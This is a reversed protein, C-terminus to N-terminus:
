GAYSVRTTVKQRRRVAVGVAGMGLIMMAWTAPEPVAPTSSTIVASITGHNDYYGGDDIIGLFLRTAGTPVYFTQVAGSGTGTLGDGIFFIQDLNPSITSFDTGSLQAPAAGSPVSPGLFVGALGNLHVNTPGSIGTGYDPTLNYTFSTDGDATPSVPESLYHAAGGTTSFTLFTGPSLTIPALVPSNAPATDGACCHTGAPQGALYIDDLASVSVTTQASAPLSLTSIAVAAGLCIVRNMM